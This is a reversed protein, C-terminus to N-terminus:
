KGGKAQAVMIAAPWLDNLVRHSEQKLCNPRIIHRKPRGWTFSDSYCRNQELVPQLGFDNMYYGPKEPVTARIHVISTM